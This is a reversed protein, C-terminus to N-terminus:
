KKNNRGTPVKPKTASKKISKAKAITKEQQEKDTDTDSDSEKQEEHTQQEEKSDLHITIDDEQEPLTDSDSVKWDAVGKERWLKVKEIDNTPLEEGIQYTHSNLLVPYKAILKRM